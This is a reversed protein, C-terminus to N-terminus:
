DTRMAAVLVGCGLEVGVSDEVTLDVDVDVDVTVRGGEGNGLLELVRVIIATSCVGRGM